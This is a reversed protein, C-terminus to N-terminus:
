VPSVYPSNLNKQKGTYDKAVIKFVCVSDAQAETFEVNKGSQHAFMKGLAHRKDAPNEIFEAVGNGIISSYYYGSNCPEKAYLPEGENFITFCVRNNRKLIDTKRGEKACHFYIYLINDKIEYGYSLPVVYPVKDDVMAISATKCMDLIEQIVKIDNVERDQRRMRAGKSRGDPKGYGSSREVEARGFYDM